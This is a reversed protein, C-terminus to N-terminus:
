VGLLCLGLPAMNILARRMFSASYVEVVEERTWEFEDDTIM